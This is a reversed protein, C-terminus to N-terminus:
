ALAMFPMTLKPTRVGLRRTYSVPELFALRLVTRKLTLDGSKWINWPKSLFDFPLEFLEERTHRPKYSNEIREETLLKELELKSIRKEYASIVSANSADVIRDLLQEIQKDIKKVNNELSKNMEYAQSMRMNWLDIFMAKALDFLGKPPQALVCYGNMVRARMRNQKNPMKKGSISLFRRSCTRLSSQIRIRELSLPPSQLIGGAETIATRLALHADLGCALRSVDDIIVVHPDHSRKRIFRLM